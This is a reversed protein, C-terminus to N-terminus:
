KRKLKESAPEDILWVLQGTPRVRSCPYDMKLELIEKIKDSKGSGCVVFYVNRANNLVPYTLTIRTAPPKPSDTLYAVTTDKVSLLSHGPFLSCTHGDPGMGLLILDFSPENGLLQEIQQKYDQACAAPDNILDENITHINQRPIGTAEFFSTKFGLYNSDQDNLKVLREDAFFIHWNNTDMKMLAETLQKSLSGGSLVLTFLNRKSIAENAIGVLKTNLYKSLELTSNFVMLSDYNM